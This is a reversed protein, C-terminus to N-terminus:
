ESVTVTWGNGELVSKAALGVPGPIGNNIGNISIYGGTMGNESLEVLINDVSESSLSCDSIELYESDKGLPQTRSIILDTLDANQSLDLSDLMPLFSLDLTGQIECQDLDLYRLNNLGNLNPIGASFDSRFIKKFFNM